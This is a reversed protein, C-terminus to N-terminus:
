NKVFRKVSPEGNKDSISILYVGSTLENLDITTNSLQNDYNASFVIQGVSNMIDIKSFSWSEDTNISLTSTTPNPFVTFSKTAIEKESDSTIERALSSRTIRCYSNAELTEDIPLAWNHSFHEYGFNVNTRVRRLFTQGGFRDIKGFCNSQTWLLDENVGILTTEINSGSMNDYSVLVFRNDNLSPTVMKPTHFYPAGNGNGASMLSLVDGGKHEIGATLPGGSPQWFTFNSNAGPPLIPFPSYKFMDIGFAGFDSAVAPHSTKDKYGFITVSHPTAKSIVIQCGAMKHKVNGPHPVEYAQLNLTPFSTTVNNIGYYYPSSPSGSNFLMWIEDTTPDYAASAGLAYKDGRTFSLDGNRIIRGRMSPDVICALVMQDGRSNGISGTLFLMKNPLELIETVTNNIDSGYYETKWNVGSLDFPLSALIGFSEMNFAMEQTYEYGGVFYTESFKSQIIKTGNSNYEESEFKLDAVFNGRSDLKVVYLRMTEENGVTGIVVIDGNRDVIVDMARDDDDIDITRGWIINGQLDVKTIYIDYGYWTEKTSAVAYFNGGAPASAISNHILNIDSGFASVDFITSLQASVSQFLFLLALPTFIKKMFM